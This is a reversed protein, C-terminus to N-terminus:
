EEVPTKWVNKQYFGVVQNGCLHIMAQFHNLNSFTSGKLSFAWFPLYLALTM